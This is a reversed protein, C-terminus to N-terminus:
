LNSGSNAQKSRVTTHSCSKSLTLSLQQDFMDRYQKGEPGGDFLDDGLSAERMSKLMMQTFLAEFQQAVARLTAPSNTHADARLRTLGQFDTYVDPSAIPTTM